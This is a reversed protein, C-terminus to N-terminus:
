LNGDFEVKGDNSEDFKLILAMIENNSVKPFLNILVNKWEEISIDGSRDADFLNFATRLEEFWLLLFFFTNYLEFFSFFITM